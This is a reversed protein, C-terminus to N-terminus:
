QAIDATETLYRTAEKSSLPKAFLYGQMKDCGIQRLYRLQETNEVGEALTTLGLSNALAVIAKVIAGADNQKPIDDIFSKDIKLKNLPLHRLYALSSYGTGFDDIAITVGLTQLNRLIPIWREPEQMLVSETIEIELKSPDLKTQQLVEEIDKLFNAEALQIGSVNIAIRGNFIAADHWQKAQRCAEKLIWKGLPIILKTKEAIPIFQLPSISGLSDHNWRILAEFGTIEGNELSIQPQYYLEFAEDAIAERLSNEIMLQEFLAQTLEHTYFKYRKKGESKARHMATDALRILADPTVADDPFLTIGISASLFHARQEIMFPKEFLHLINEAKQVTEDPAHINQSLLAFTDGSFRAILDSDTMISKFRQVAELLIRDGTDHGYTDNIIKFDDLDFLFLAVKQNTHRANEFAPTLQQTLFYRNPIDTLPDYLTQYQRQAESAKLQRERIVKDTIDEGSSLTGTIEGNEERLLVNHWAILRRRGNKTVVENEHYHPYETKGAIIDAFVQHIEPRINEPICTKIWNKGILEGAEYGLVQSGKKNILTVNANKDLSLLIVGAIDLYREARKREQEAQHFAMEQRTIERIIVIVGSIHGDDERLPKFEGEEYRVTDSDPLRFTDRITFTEGRLARDLLPKFKHFNTEGIIERLHAGELETRNRRHFTLYAQNALRYRYSRDIVVIMESLANLIKPEPLTNHTTKM